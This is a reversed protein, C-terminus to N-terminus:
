LRHTKSFTVLYFAKQFCQKRFIGNSLLPKVRLLNVIPPSHFDPKKISMNPPHKKGGLEKVNLIANPFPVAKISFGLLFSFLVGNIYQCISVTQMVFTSCSSGVVRHLSM